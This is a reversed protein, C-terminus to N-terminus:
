STEDKFHHIHAPEEGSSGLWLWQSTSKCQLPLPKATSQTKVHTRKELLPTDACEPAYLLIQFGLKREWTGTEGRFQSFSNLKVGERECCSSDSRDTTFREVDQVFLMSSWLIQNVLRQSVPRGFLSLSVNTYLCVCDKNRHRGEGQDPFGKEEEEDKNRLIIIRRHQTRRNTAPNMFPLYSKTWVKKKARCIDGSKDFSNPDLIKTWLIQKSTFPTRSLLISRCGSKPWHMRFILILLKQNKNDDDDLTKQTLASRQM